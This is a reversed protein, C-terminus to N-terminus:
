NADALPDAHRRWIGRPDAVAFRSVLCVFNTNLYNVFVEMDGAHRPRDRLVFDFGGQIEVPLCHIFWPCGAAPPGQPTMAYQTVLVGYNKAVLKPSM